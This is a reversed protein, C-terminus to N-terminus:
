GGELVLRCFMEVGTAIAGDQFDFAPHHLGPMADQGDPRLGLVFFCAPVVKGYFAFDEAGM